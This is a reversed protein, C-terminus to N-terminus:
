DTLLGDRGGEQGILEAIERKVYEGLEGRTYEELCEPLRRVQPLCCRKTKDLLDSYEYLALLQEYQMIKARAIRDESTITFIRRCMRLIDFLGQMSESLDLVVYEYEGLEAIKQLLSLWEAATITLLNQGVRMPPIYDLNGRRQIMTQMRLRFKEEGANLFYLLDALDREQGDPLLETIGAYHEFNLYLTSHERSLLQCMTIAFSSQLCRKVPSYMGIFRTRQNGTLRPLQVTAIEMYIELLQKIVSDAKQYKDVNLFEDWQLLGSENLIVLRVPQLLKMEECYADEAVVLMSLKERREKQLLEGVDTYIRLEWPLDRQKRLYEGFLEAYETDRDCLILVNECKDM